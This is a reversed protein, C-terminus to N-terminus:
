ASPAVRNVRTVPRLGNSPLPGKAMAALTSVWGIGSGRVILGCTSAATASSIRRAIAFDGSSRKWVGNARRAWACTTSADNAPVPAGLPTTRVAPGADVVAAGTGAVLGVAMGAGKGRVPGLRRREPGADPDEQGRAMM